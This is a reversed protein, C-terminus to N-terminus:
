LKFDFHDTLFTAFSDVVVEQVEPTISQHAGTRFLVAHFCEHLLTQQLEHGKLENHLVIRGEKYYCLGHFGDKSLDKFEVKFDQGLINIKFPKM